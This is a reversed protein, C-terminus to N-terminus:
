PRKPNWFSSIMEVNRPSTKEVVGNECFSTSFHRRSARKGALITAQNVRMREKDIPFVRLRVQVRVLISLRYYRIVTRKM